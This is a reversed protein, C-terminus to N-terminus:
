TEMETRQMTLKELQDTLDVVQQKLDIIALRVWKFRIEGDSKDIGLTDYLAEMANDHYHHADEVEAKLADCEARLAAYESFLMDHDGDRM